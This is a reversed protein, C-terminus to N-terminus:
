ADILMGTDIGQQFVRKDAGCVFASTFDGWNKALDMASPRYYRKLVMLIKHGSVAALEIVSPLKEAM